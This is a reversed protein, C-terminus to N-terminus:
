SRKGTSAAATATGSTRPSDVVIVGFSRSTPPEIAEAYKSPRFPAEIDSSASTPSCTPTTNM